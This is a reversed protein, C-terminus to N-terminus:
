NQYQAKRFLLFDELSLMLNEEARRMQSTLGYMEAKPFESTNKYTDLTLQHGLEWVRYKRFDRM